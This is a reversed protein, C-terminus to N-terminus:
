FTHRQWERLHSACLIGRHPYQVLAGDVSVGNPLETRQWLELNPQAQTIRIAAFEPLAPPVDDPSAMAVVSRRPPTPYEQLLEIEPKFLRKHWPAVRAISNRHAGSEALLLNDVVKARWEMSLEPRQLIQEYEYAAIDAAGAKLAVACM